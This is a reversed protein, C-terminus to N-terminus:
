FCRVTAIYNLSVGLGISEKIKPCVYYMRKENSEADFVIILTINCLIDLIASM